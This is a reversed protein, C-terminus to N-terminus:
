CYRDMMMGSYISTIYPTVLNKGPNKYTVIIKDVYKMPDLSANNAKANLLNKFENLVSLHEEANEESVSETLLARDISIEGKDNVLLGMSELSNQFTFATSSMDRYLKVSQHQSDSYKNATHLISNYSDVLTQINEAMADANTKFGIVAPNGEESLGRLTLEFAHNITFTNSYASREVGDLLFVANGAEQAVHDIGLADIASISDRTGQPYISFLYNEEPAIGTSVSEIQLASLGNPDEVVSAKLGIDANTILNSLKLQTTYNTDDSNITFQFEFASSTNELDFSYSGPRLSLNDKDLFNGLNVQSSALQKVEILFSDTEESEKNDGIFDASVVDEQSSVAIKKQFANGIGEEADSLSAIVNKIVRTSEKIDIAFKQVDGSHKIKYLPSDKNIKVINNYISRLESKKHSDYRSASQKGYTSLYYNYATDIGAM